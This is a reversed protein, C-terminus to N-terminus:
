DRSRVREHGIPQGHRKTIKDLRNFGRAIFRTRKFLCAVIGLLFRLRVLAIRFRKLQFLVDDKSRNQGQRNENKFHSRMDNWRQVHEDHVRNSHLVAPIELKHQCCKDEEARTHAKKLFPM